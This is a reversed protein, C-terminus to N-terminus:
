LKLFFVPVFAALAVAVQLVIMQITQKPMKPLWSLAFFLVIPVQGVMLLQFLHAAIGEDKNRVIGFIAINGLVLALATISM